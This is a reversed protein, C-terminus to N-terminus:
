WKRRGGGVIKIVRKVGRGEPNRGKLEVERLKM